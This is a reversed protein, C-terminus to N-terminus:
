TESADATELRERQTNCYWRCQSNTIALMHLLLFLTFARLHVCMFSDRAPSFCLRTPSQTPESTPHTPWCHVTLDTKGLSYHYGAWDLWPWFTLSRVYTCVLANFGREREIRVQSGQRRQGPAQDWGERQSFGSGTDLWSQIRCWVSGGVWGLQSAPQEM